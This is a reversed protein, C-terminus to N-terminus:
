RRGNKENSSGINWMQAYTRFYTDREDENHKTLRKLETTKIQHSWKIVFLLLIPCVLTYYPIVSTVRHATRSTAASCFAQRENVDIDAVIWFTALLSIIICIAILILGVYSRYTDYDRHKWLAVARELLIAFQLAAFSIMCATAPLRLTLCVAPPLGVECPDNIVLYRILQTIQLTTFFISHVIYLMLMALTLVKCNIHFHLNRCQILVAASIVASLLGAIAQSGVVILFGTSKVLEEDDDCNM